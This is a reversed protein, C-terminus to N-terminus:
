VRVFSPGLMIVGEKGVNASKNWRFDKIKSSSVTGELILGLLVEV